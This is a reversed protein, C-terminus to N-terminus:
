VSFRSKLCLCLLSRDFADVCIGAVSANESFGAMSYLVEILLEATCLFDFKPCVEVNNLICREKHTTDFVIRRPVMAFQNWVIVVGPDNNITFNYKRVM